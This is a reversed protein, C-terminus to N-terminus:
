YGQEVNLDRYSTPGRVVGDEESETVNTPSMGQTGQTGSMLSPMGFPGQSAIMPSLPTLGPTSAGQLPVPEMGDKHDMGDKATADHARNEVRQVENKGDNQDDSLHGSDKIAQINPVPEGLLEDGAEKIKSQVDPHMLDPQAPTNDIGEQRLKLGQATMDAMPDSADGAQQTEKATKKAATEEDTEEGLLRDQEAQRFLNDRAQQTLQAEREKRAAVQSPADGWGRIKEYDLERQRMADKLDKRQASFPLRGRGTLKPLPDMYQAETNAPDRAEMIAIDSAKENAANQQALTENATQRLRANEMAEELPSPKRKYRGEALYRLFNLPKRAFAGFNPTPETMGVLGEGADALVRSMRAAQSEKALLDDPSEVPGKVFVKGM